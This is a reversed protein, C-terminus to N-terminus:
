MAIFTAERRVRRGYTSRYWRRPSHIPSIVDQYLYVKTSVEREGERGCERERKGRKRRGRFSM